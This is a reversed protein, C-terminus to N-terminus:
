VEPTPKWAIRGRMQKIEWRCRIGIIMINDKAAFLPRQFGLTEIGQHLDLLEEIHDAYSLQAVYDTKDEAKHRGQHFNDVIVKVVFEAKGSKRGEMLVLPIDSWEVALYPRPPQTFQSEDWQTPNNQWPIVETPAEIEKVTYYEATAPAMVRTQILTLISAFSM